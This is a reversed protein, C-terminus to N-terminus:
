GETVRQVITTTNRSDSREYRVDDFMQRVLQVGLGGVKRTELSSTTDPEPLEWPNFPVGDDSITAEIIAERRTVRCDIFREEDGSYAYKIINSLLEDFALAFQRQAAASGGCRAVSAEV